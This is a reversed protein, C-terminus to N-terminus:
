THGGHFGGGHGGDFGGGHHDFIHQDYARGPVVSHGPQLSDSWYTGSPAATAWATRWRAAFDATQAQPRAAGSSERPGGATLVPATLGFIMAYPAYRALAGGDGDGAMARLERGFARIEELLEEGAKTRWVPGRGPRTLQARTLLRRVMGRGLWGAGVADREIQSRVEDLLPVMGATVLGLRITRPGDFLGRLLAREYGLLGNPGADLDTIQWDRGDDEIPEVRLYGREALDVVTAGIHRLTVRGVLVVGLQAPRLARPPV